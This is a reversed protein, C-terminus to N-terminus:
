AKGAIVGGDGVLLGVVSKKQRIKDNVETLLWGEALRKLVL